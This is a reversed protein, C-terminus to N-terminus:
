LYSVFFTGKINLFSVKGYPDEKPQFKRKGISLQRELTHTKKRGTQQKSIQVKSAGNTGILLDQSFFIERPARVSYMM